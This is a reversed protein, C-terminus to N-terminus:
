LLLQCRLIFWATFNMEKCRKMWRSFRSRFCVSPRRGVVGREAVAGKESSRHEMSVCGGTTISEKEGCWYEVDVEGVGIM